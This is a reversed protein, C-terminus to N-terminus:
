EVKTIVAPMDDDTVLNIFMPAVWKLILAKSGDSESGIWYRHFHGRCMHPRKPSSKHTKTTSHEIIKAGDLETARIAKGIRYGVDWKRVERLTDKPQSNDMSKRTIAKQKPNERIEANAVCIYLVLQIAKSIFDAGVSLSTEYESNKDNTLEADSLITRLENVSDEITFNEKIYLPIALTYKEAIALFNIALNAGAGDSTRMYDFNCFFGKFGLSSGGEIQVYFSPYPTRLLTMVPITLNSDASEMLLEAFDSDFSYIEKYKRWSYLSVIHAVDTPDYKQNSKKHLLQTIAVGFVSPLIVRSEDWKFDVMDPSEKTVQIAVDCTEWVDPYKKKYDQVMKMPVPVEIDNRKKRPM